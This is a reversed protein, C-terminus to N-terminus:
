WSLLKKLYILTCVFVEYFYHLLIDAAYLTVLHSYLLFLKNRTVIAVIIMMIDMHTHLYLLSCFLFRRGM